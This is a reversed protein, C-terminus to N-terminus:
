LEKPTVFITSNTKYIVMGPRAGAPKKVNKVATYDVPVQSSGRAQSHFAALQAAELLTSDPLDQGNTAIIVHSGHINKTHLWIDDKKATRLTLTDNQANNRGVLITFGDSSVYERPPLSKHKVAKGKQKKLYGSSVLEDHIDLIELLTEARALADSVSQIYAQESECDAILTGLTQEASCLKRYEKFYKAANNQPSLAPDLPIRITCLNEDYYNPVEAFTAGSQIQGINAKILEGYIRYKEREKCKEKEKKRLFLKKDLRTKTNSLVRLIDAASRKIRSQRDRESYFADLLESFSGFERKTYLKGYQGLPMFSFDKPMGDSDILMVPTGKKAYTCFTGFAVRLGTKQEESLEGVTIEDGSALFAIERAVLPSIGAANELIARSLPLESKRLILDTIEADFPSMKCLADPPSYLAGPQILRASSEVDSRRVADVIRGDESVLIINSQNGIFEAILRMNRREGMEDTAIINLTLARELGDQTVSILKGGTLHKRMLMCFMPPVAPNEFNEETFSIRSSGSRVCILLKKVFGAGRLTIVLEEKQPQFIKDIRSGSATNLEECLNSIFIADFPM